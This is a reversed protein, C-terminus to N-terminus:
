TIAYILNQREKGCKKGRHPYSEAGRCATGVFSHSRAKQLGACQFGFELDPAYMCSKRGTSEVEIKRDPLMETYSIRVHRQKTVVPAHLVTGKEQPHIFNVNITWGNQFDLLTVVRRVGHEANNSAVLSSATSTVYCRPTVVSGYNVVAESVGVFYQWLCESVFGAQFLSTNNINLNSDHSVPLGLLVTLVLLLLVHPTNM